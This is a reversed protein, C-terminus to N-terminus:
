DERMRSAVVGFAVAGLILGGVLLYRNRDGPTAYRLKTGWAKEQFYRDPKGRLADMLMSEAIDVRDAMMLTMWRRNTGEGYQYAYERLRGSLGHLPASEGFVPTLGPQENTVLIKTTPQQWHKVDGRATKVNSPFERPVAPRVAPDLDVGWGNIERYDAPLHKASHGPAPVPDEGRTRASRQLEKTEETARTTKQVEPRM